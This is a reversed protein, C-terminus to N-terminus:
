GADWQTQLADLGLRRDVKDGRAELAAILEARDANGTVNLMEHVEFQPNNRLKEARPHDDPVDVSDGRKFAFGAEVIVPEDGVYSILM